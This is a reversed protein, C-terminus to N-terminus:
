LRERGRPRERTRGGQTEIGKGTVEQIDTKGAIETGLYRQRQTDRPNETDTDPKTQTGREVRCSSCANGGYYWIVAGEFIGLGHPLGLGHYYRWPIVSETITMTGLGVSPGASLM